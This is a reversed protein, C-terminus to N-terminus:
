LSRSTEQLGPSAAVIVGFHKTIAAQATRIARLRELGATITAGIQSAEAELFDYAAKLADASTLDEM